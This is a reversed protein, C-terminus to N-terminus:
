GNMISKHIDAGINNKNNDGFRNGINCNQINRIYNELTCIVPKEGECFSEEYVNSDLICELERKYKEEKIGFSTRSQLTETGLDFVDWCKEYVAYAYVRDQDQVACLYMESSFSESNEDYDADYYIEKFAQEVVKREVDVKM